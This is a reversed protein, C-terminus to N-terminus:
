LRAKIIEANSKLLWYGATSVGAARTGNPELLKVYHSLVEKAEISKGSASLTAAENLDSALQSCMATDTLWLLQPKCAADTLASLRKLLAAPSRDSPLPEVGVTAGNIMENALPDDVAADENSPLEFKGGAWFTSFGPLGVSEFSLDPTVEGAPLQHGLLDWVAMPRQRFDTSAYWNKRPSPRAISVVGSPADVLFSLLAEESGVLNKVQYTIGITDGRNVISTVQVEVKIRQGPGPGRPSSDRTNATTDTPRLVRPAATDQKVIASSAIHTPSTAPTPERRTEKPACGALVALLLLIRM